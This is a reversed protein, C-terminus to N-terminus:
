LPANCAGTLIERAEAVLYLSGTVCIFKSKAKELASSISETIEVAFKGNDLKSVLEKSDMSRANQSQTAILTECLPALEEFLASVNKDQNVGLVFTWSTEGFITRLTNALAAASEQNHAGDLVIISNKAQIVEFRGPLRAASLGNVIDSKTIPVGRDILAEAAAIATAANNIQHHGLLPTNLKRTGKSGHLIFEQGHTSMAIPELEYMKAVDVFNCKLQKCREAVIHKVEPDKQPALIVTCGPTIIGAKEKAIAQTTNGLIQTHELSIATIIALDKQSFVNTTDKAGGLGVEVVQWDVKPKSTNVLHFFLATLIGFTAIKQSGKSNVEEIFPRITDVGDSFLKEAVPQMDFSIRERYSHLHPSTFLATHFSAATLISALMTSTSGKGKSGTIHITPRNNQPNGMLALLEQMTALSMTPTFSGQTGRELDPFSQIFKIAESYNM